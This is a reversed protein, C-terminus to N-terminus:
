VNLPEFTRPELKENPSGKFEQVRSGSFRPVPLSSMIWIRDIRSTASLEPARL